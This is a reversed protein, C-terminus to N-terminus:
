NEPWPTIILMTDAGLQSWIEETIFPMFPHLLKLIAVLTHALIKATSDKSTDDGSSETPTESKLQKKSEEIYVDAFDRWIFDYLAHTANGFNFIEINKSVALITEKLKTLIQKASEAGAEDALTLEGKAASALVAIDVNTMIYRAINWLKNGFKKGMLLADENFRIEQNEFSQYLLGFRTGDAGYKKIMELPDIGTGLSKSMRKGDKTQITAHVIIDKFPVEGTFELGSFIMRSIWLHLIDRASTIMQTSYYEKLDATAKPWGLTAFPWLASSFWTDFTDNSGAIPVPHGWWIQRSICWDRVNELWDVAVPTWRPPYYKVEGSKIAALAKAALPKMKVFWQNSLLPEITSNCRYCKAINHTFEEEKVLLNQERLEALVKARAEALKLGDFEASVNVIRGVENIVKLFPLNNRSAVESDALDHAPTVKVAGTGFEKDVLRDAIIPIERKIIPLIVIKGVMEQYRSDDPNVAVAMDGLMTEPRTTAVTVFQDSDKIPYNFYWLKSKEEVYELELDSLATQDKICWNIVREGQYILGKEQYHFFAAKVAEQYEPDMTFRTRSWDCSCGLTKLQDLIIDGYKERWEWIKELFKEKGLDHRTLGQKKLDKEVVNQTAIGAHDTGPLWLVKDGKMRHYRVLTDSITNELAHGIHLSGTINPPAIMMTFKKTRKGPLNDPNFFGSALWKQYIKWETEAPSYQPPLNEM